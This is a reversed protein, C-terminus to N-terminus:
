VLTRENVKKDGSEMGALHSTSVAIREAFKIQTLGTIQRIEKVRKNITM